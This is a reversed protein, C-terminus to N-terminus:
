TWGRALRRFSLSPWSVCTLCLKCAALACQSCLWPLARPAFGTRAHLDPRVPPALNYDYAHEDTGTDEEDDIADGDKRKRSEEDNKPRKKLTVDADPLEALIVALRNVKNLM